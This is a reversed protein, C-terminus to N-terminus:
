LLHQVETCALVTYLSIRRARSTKLRNTDTVM